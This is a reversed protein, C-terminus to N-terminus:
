LLLFNIGIIIIIIIFYLLFFVIHWLAVVVDMIIYIKKINRFQGTQCLSCHGWQLLRLLLCRRRSRRAGESYVDGVRVEWFGTRATPIFPSQLLPFCLRLVLLVGAGCHGSCSIDLDVQTDTPSWAGQFFGEESKQYCSFFIVCDPSITKKRGGQQVTKVERLVLSWMKFHCLCCSLCHTHIWCPQKSFSNPTPRTRLIRMQTIKRRPKPPSKSSRTSPTINISKNLSVNRATRLSFPQSTLLFQAFFCSQCVSVTSGPIKSFNYLTRFLIFFKSHFLQASNCWLRM